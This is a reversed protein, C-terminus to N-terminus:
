FTRLRLESPMGEWWVKAVMGEGFAENNADRKDVNIAAHLCALNPILQLQSLICGSLNMFTESGM